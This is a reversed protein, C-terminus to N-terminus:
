CIVTATLVTNLVNNVPRPPKGPLGIEPRSSPASTNTRRVTNPNTGIPTVAATFPDVNTILTSGPLM